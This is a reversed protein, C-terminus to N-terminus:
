DFAQTEIGEDGRGESNPALSKVGEEVQHM